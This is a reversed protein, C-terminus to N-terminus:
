MIVMWYHVEDKRSVGSKATSIVIQNLKCIKCANTLRKISFVTNLCYVMSEIPKYRYCGVRSTQSFVLTQLDPAAPSHNVSKELTRGFM